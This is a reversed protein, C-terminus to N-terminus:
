GILELWWGSHRDARGTICDSLEVSDGLSILFRQFLSNDTSRVKEVM